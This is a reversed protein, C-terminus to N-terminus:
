QKEFFDQALEIIETECKYINNIKPPTELKAVASRIKRYLPEMEMQRIRDIIMEELKKEDEKKPYNPPLTTWFAARVVSGFVYIDSSGEKLQIYKIWRNTKKRQYKFLTEFLGQQCWLTDVFFDAVSQDLLTFLHFHGANQQTLSGWSMQYDQSILNIAEVIVKSWGNKDELIHAAEHLFSDEAISLKSDSDGKGILITPPLGKKRQSDHIYAATKVVSFYIDARSSKEESSLDEIHNVYRQYLKEWQKLDELFVLHIEELSLGLKKFSEVLWKKIKEVDYRGPNGIIKISTM